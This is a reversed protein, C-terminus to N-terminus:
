PSEDVAQELQEPSKHSVYGKLGWAFAGLLGAVGMMATGFPPDSVYGKEQRWEDAMEKQEVPQLSLFLRRRDEVRENARLHRYLAASMRM